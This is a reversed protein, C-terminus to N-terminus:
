QFDNGDDDKHNKTNHYIAAAVGVTVINASFVPSNRSCRKM